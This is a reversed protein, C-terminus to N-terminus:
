TPSLSGPGRPFRRVAALAWDGDRWVYTLVRLEDPEAEYVHLRNCLCEVKAEHMAHFRGIWAAAMPMAQPDPSKSM